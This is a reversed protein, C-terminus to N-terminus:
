RGYVDFGFYRDQIWQYTGDTRIAAIAASLRQALEREGKRVAIGQGEGFYRDDTVPPGAFAFGVGAETKLFASEINVADAFTGDLLGASLAIFVDNQSDYRVIEAGAPALVDSAYLDFISSRQVGIRLGKVGALTNLAIGERMVLRAPTAYYKDTFDVLQRREDTITMSSLVVDFKRSNLAPILGDFEQEIWKCEVQMHACLAMGIDHDFGTIDGEPTKYAFPPYAAEIGIRLAKNDAGMVLSSFLLLVLTGSLALQM